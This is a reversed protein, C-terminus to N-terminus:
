EKQAPPQAQAKLLPVVREVIEELTGELLCGAAQTHGGGGLSLAVGAVDYGPRARFSIDIRNDPQETFVAAVNAEEASILINSLGIDGSDRMGIERRAALSIATWIVGSDLTLNVLGLGWLRLIPVSRRHLTTETIGALDIGAEVLRAAVQLTNSTVNSTSFSRTDGVLGTALCTAIDQTMVIGLGDLLLPLIETTAAAQPDVVNVTGFNLNTIHHDINIVPIGSSLWDTSCAGLRQPDSADVGIFLEPQLDTSSAVSASEPLFRLKVPVPDDCLLAVQKGIARLGIGLGLLSGLADSDPSVHTAIAIRNAASIAGVAEEIPIM